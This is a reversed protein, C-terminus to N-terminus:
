GSGWAVLCWSLVEAMAGTCSPIAAITNFGSHNSSREWNGWILSYLPPKSPLFPSRSLFICFCFLIQFNSWCVGTHNVPTFCPLSTCFLWIQLKRNNYFPLRWALREDVEAVGDVLSPTSSNCFLAELGWGGYINLLIGHDITCDEWRICIM